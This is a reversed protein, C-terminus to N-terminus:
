FLSNFNTKGHQRQRNVSRFANLPVKDGRRIRERQLLLRFFESRNEFGVTENRAIIEDLAAVEDAAASKGSAVSPQCWACISILRQRLDGYVTCM